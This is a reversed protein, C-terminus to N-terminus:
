PLVHGAMNCTPKEGVAGPTYVGGDPCVPAMGNPKFYPRLDEMTPTDTNQKGNQQAWQMKVAEFLRLNNICANASQLKQNEAQAQALAGKGAEAESTVRQNLTQIEQRAKVLDNSQKRLQAVENRLRALDRTQGEQISASGSAAQTASALQEQLPALQAAQQKLAENEQRLEKLTQQQVFYMALAAVTGACVM